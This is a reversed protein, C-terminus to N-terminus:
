QAAAGELQPEESLPAPASPEPDAEAAEAFAPGMRLGWTARPAKVQIEEGEREVLLDVDDNEGVPDRLAKLRNLQPVGWVAQGDCSLITDGVALLPNAVETGIVVLGRTVLPEGRADLYHLGTLQGNEDYSALRTAWRGGGLIPVGDEGVITKRTERGDDDYDADWGHMGSPGSVPENEVGVWRLSTQQGAANFTKHVAAYRQRWLTPAGDVGIYSEVVVNGRRDYKRDWGHHGYAHTMPEGDSDFFRQEIKRGLADYAMQVEAYGNIQASGGAVGIYVERVRNGWADYEADWGHIGTDRAVPTGDAAFYRLSVLHGLANFTKRVEAYGLRAMVRNGGVGIFTRVVENGRVDYAAEFGHNGDTHAAPKGLADFYRQEIKRGLADYAMQVEAYGNIQASAGDVGIYAERVRNGWADYEADWGHIGTDRAVPTGDAAVYRLSVLHGFSNYTKRVEAYGFRVMVRNGGVGVFTRVVENGRADYVSDSGHHGDTHTAPKGLADFYRQKTQRGFVDYAMQIEAFGSTEVVDGDVGIYTERSKNGRQDHEADLGHFGDTHTTANGEADFYRISVLHGRSDYARRSEAFGQRVGVPNGDVGIYTRTIESGRVDYEAEYGHEGDPHLAPKGLADFYRQNTKRGFADYAMRVEAYGNIVAVGGEVGIYWERTRNGWADYEADWGHYGKVHTTPEGEADFYRMSILQGLPNYTQRVEAYGDITGVHRGDVGVYTRVIENGRTDYLSDFGHNGDTHTTPKGEGDFYRQSVKRGLTDYSMRLEAHGQFLVAAGATDVYRESTRNGRAGYTAEWGHRGNNDTTPDGEVDFYRMSTCRGLSSYTARYGAYGQRANAPRGDLDVYRELIRNGWDDYEADWGHKGDGHVTPEGAPDFYRAATRRGLADYAMAVEAFGNISVASGEIGVYRELIRNGWDDYEADWGHEGDSHTTPMGDADFYRVSTLYGLADYARREEAFGLRVRVRRGDVGVFVRRTENGRADYESDRGHSGDTHTAPTGQEDFYRRTVERGFENYTARVEAHGSLTVKGGEVGLYTRRTENGRSDCEADWGHHGDVHTTPNGDADFLRVSTQHGFDDYTKRAEAYGQKINVRSGDVGVFVRLLENGRGDYETDYGHNGDTHTAPMGQADLYRKSTEQGFSDYTLRVEAYGDIAVVAGNVGIYRESTQNGMADYQAHWSHYGDAYTTPKGKIDYGQSSEIRGLSDYTMRVEAVGIKSTVRDGNVDVYTERTRNGRADYEANWGHEGDVHTTPTGNGDFYRVAVVRDLADYTVRAESFGNIFTSDGNIGVYSERIQNGRRDHEVDMGHYGDTCLTARGVADFYRVSTGRGLSNYTTRTDAYGHVTATPQEVADVYVRRTENGKADFEANWGHNGDTHTVPENDAGFYRTSIRRGYSDFQSREIAAGSAGNVLAGDSKENYLSQISGERVLRYCVEGDRGIGFKGDPGIPLTRALRGSADYRFEYGCIANANPMLEGDETTSVVRFCRGDDTWEYTILQQTPRLGLDAAAPEAVPTASIKTLRSVSPAGWSLAKTLRASVRDEGYSFVRARNPSEFEKRWIPRGTASTADVTKIMDDVYEYTWQVARKAGALLLPDHQDTYGSPEEVLRFHSNVLRVRQVPGWWGSRTVEYTQSRSEAASKSVPDIGNLVGYREGAEAFYSKSPWQYAARRLVEAGGAVAAAFLALCALARAPHNKAPRVITEYWASEAAQYWTLPELPEAALWRELDRRLDGTSAYRRRPEPQLCRLCIKQLKRNADGAKVSPKPPTDRLRALIESREGDAATEYPREKALLEYLIVGIPYQDSAATVKRPDQIQEPSMYGFTGLRADEETMRSLQAPSQEDPEALVALGFDALKPRGNTDLLINEPKVDRHVFGKEHISELGSCVGILASVIEKQTDRREAVSETSKFKALQKRLDGGELYETVLYLSGEFPAQECVGRGLVQIVHAGSNAAAAKVEHDFRRVAHELRSVRPKIIKIAVADGVATRTARYVYGFGGEGLFKDVVYGDIDPWMSPDAGGGPRSARPKDQVVPFSDADGDVHQDETSPVNLEDHEEESM